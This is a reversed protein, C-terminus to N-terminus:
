CSKQKTTPFFGRQKDRQARRLKGGYGGNNGKIQQKVEKRGKEIENEGRCVKEVKM